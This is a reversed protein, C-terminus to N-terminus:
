MVVSSNVQGPIQAHERNEPTYESPSVELDQLLLSVDDQKESIDVVDNSVAM